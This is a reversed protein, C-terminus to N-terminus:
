AFSAQRGQAIETMFKWCCNREYIERLKKSNPIRRQQFLKGGILIRLTPFAPPYSVNQGFRNRASLIGCGQGKKELLRELLVDAESNGHLSVTSAVFVTKVM